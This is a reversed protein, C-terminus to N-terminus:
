RLATTPALLREGGYRLVRLDIILDFPMGPPGVGTDLTYRVGQPLGTPFRERMAAGFMEQVAWEADTTLSGFEDAYVRETSRDGLVPRM